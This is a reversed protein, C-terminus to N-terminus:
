RSGPRLWSRLCGASPPAAKLIIPGRPLSVAVSAHLLEKWTLLTLGGRGRALWAATERSWSVPDRRVRHVLVTLGVCWGVQPITKCGLHMNAVFVPGHHQWTAPLRQEGIAHGPRNGM